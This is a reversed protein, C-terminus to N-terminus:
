AARRNLLAAQRAQLMKLAFDKHSQKVHDVLIGNLGVRFQCSVLALLYADTKTFKQIFVKILTRSIDPNDAAIAGDIGIALPQTFGDVFCKPYKKYLLKSLEALKAKFEAKSSKSM